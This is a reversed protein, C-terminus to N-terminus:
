IGGDVITWGYGTRFAGGSIYASSFTSGQLDVQTTNVVTVTWLGNAQTAGTVASIFVKNGTTRGHVTSTTIRILGSGNNVANTIVLSTNTRSLLLRGETSASTRKASGFSITQSVKLLNNIWGNYIADLNATSFTALTKTGMFNAFGIVNSVNWNGINQNFVHNEYFM